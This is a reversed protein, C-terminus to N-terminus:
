RQARQVLELWLRCSASSRPDQYGLIQKGRPHAAIQQAALACLDSLIESRQEVTTGVYPAIDDRIAELDSRRMLGAPLNMM